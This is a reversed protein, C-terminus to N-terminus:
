REDTREAVGEEAAEDEATRRALRDAAHVQIVALAAHFTVILLTLILFPILTYLLIPWYVPM